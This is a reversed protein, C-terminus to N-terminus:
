LTGVIFEKGFSLVWSKHDPALSLSSYGVPIERLVTETNDIFSYLVLAQETVGIQGMKKRIYLLQDEDVLAAGERYYAVSVTGTGIEELGKYLRVKSEAPSEGSGVVAFLGRTSDEVLGGMLSASTDGIDVVEKTEIDYLYDHSGDDWGTNIRAIKEPVIWAVFRINKEAFPLDSCISKISM